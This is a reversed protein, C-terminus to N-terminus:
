AGAEHGIERCGYGGTVQIIEDSQDIPETRGSFPVPNDLQDLSATVSHFLAAQLQPRGGLVGFVPQCEVGGTLVGAGDDGLLGTPKREPRQPLHRCASV